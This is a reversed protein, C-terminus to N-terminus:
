QYPERFVCFNAAEHHKVFKQESLCTNEEYAFLQKKLKFIHFILVGRCTVRQFICFGASFFIHEVREQSFPVLYLSFLKGYNLGIISCKWSLNCWSSHLCHFSVFIQALKLLFGSYSFHELAKQWINALWFMCFWVFAFCEM